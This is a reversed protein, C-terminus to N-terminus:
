VISKYVMLPLFYYVGDQLEQANSLDRFKVLKMDINSVDVVARGRFLGAYEPDPHATCARYLDAGDCESHVKQTAFWTIQAFQPIGQM